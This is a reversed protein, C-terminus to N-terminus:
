RWGFRYFCSKAVLLWVATLAALPVLAKLLLIQGPHQFALYLLIFSYSEFALGKLFGFASFKTSLYFLIAGSMMYCLALMGAAAQNRALTAICTGVCMMATSTLLLTIWLMPHALAPPNLIAVVLVSGFLSLSLHFIGKALMIESLRAPSLALATLTKRERDQATFAVLLHCCSFFQVILLLSTGIAPANILEGISKDQIAHSVPAPRAVIKQDILFAAGHHYAVWPGFWEWFPALTGPSKGAYHAVVSLGSAHGHGSNLLEVVSWGDPIALRGNRGTLQERTNIRVDIRQPVDQALSQVLPTEHDFVIAVRLAEESENEAPRGRTIQTQNEAPSSLSVLLAIGALLGILMLAAPNKQLRRIERRLLISVIYRRIM